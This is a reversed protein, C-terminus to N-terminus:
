LTASKKVAIVLSAWVFRRLRIPSRSSSLASVDRSVILVWSRSTSSSAVSLHPTRTTRTSIWRMSGGGSTTDAICAWIRASRSRRAVTVSARAELLRRDGPGVALLLRRDEGGFPALLGRDEVGFAVGPRDLQPGGGLLRPELRM